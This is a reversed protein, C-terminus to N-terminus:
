VCICTSKWVLAIAPPIQLECSNITEIHTGAVFIIRRQDNLYSQSSFASKMKILVLPNREHSTAEFNM